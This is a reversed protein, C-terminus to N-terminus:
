PAGRRPVLEQLQNAAEIADHRHKILLAIQAEMIVPDLTGVMGNRAAKLLSEVQEALDSIEELRLSLEDCTLPDGLTKSNPETLTIRLVLAKSYTSRTELAQALADGLRRVLELRRQRRLNGFAELRTWISIGLAVISVIFGLLTLSM